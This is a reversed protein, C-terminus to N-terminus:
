TLFASPSARVSDPWTIDRVRLMLVEHGFFHMTEMGFLPLGRLPPAVTLNPYNLGLSRVLQGQADWQDMDLALVVHPKGLRILTALPDEGLAEIPAQTPFSGAAPNCGGPVLVRQVAYGLMPESNLARIAEAANQGCGIVVVPRAWVGMRQLAQHVLWRTMPLLGLALGLHFLAM